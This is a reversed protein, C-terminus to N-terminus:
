IQELVMVAACNGDLGSAGGGLTEVIARRAGEIQRAGAQGTLQLFCEAIQAIGTAGLAHGRSLLGGSPNVPIDGDRHFRGQRLAAPATGPAVLDMAEITLLEGITFADHVEYLDAVPAEGLTKQISRMARKVSDIGWPKDSAGPWGQGGVVESARLGVGTNRSSRSFVVAAAGDSMPCCQLLTLPDAIPRSDMVEQLTVAISRHAIPNLAGNSRNKVAVLAIDEASTGTLHMYRQAQLAYLGPLPLGIAGDSDSAEPVIAGDFVASLMEIGIALAYECRGSRVAEAAMHAAVTGSACAAEVKIAPANILGAARSIRAALGSPGFVSGVYVAGVQDPDIGAASLAPGIATWALDEFRAGQHKGFKSTGVGAVTAIFEDDRM